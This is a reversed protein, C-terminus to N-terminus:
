LSELYKVIARERGKTYLKILTEFFVTDAQITKNRLQRLQEVERKGYKKIMAFTYDIKVREQSYAMNCGGSQGHMNHPHYRLLAGGAGDPIWHGCQFQQGYTIKGCDFCHGGIHEKSFSDRERIYTHSVEVLTKKLKALTKKKM